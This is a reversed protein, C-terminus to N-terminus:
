KIIKRIRKVERNMIQEINQRTCNYEKALQNTSKPKDSYFGCYSKLIISSRSKFDVLREIQEYCVQNIVKEYENEVEIKYNLDEKIMSYILPKLIIEFKRSPVIKLNINLQEAVINLKKFVDRLELSIDSNNLGHIYMFFLSAMKKYGLGYLKMTSVNILSSKLTMNILEYHFNKRFFESYLKLRLIKGSKLFKLWIEISNMIIDEIDFDITNYNLYYYKKLNNYILYMTGNIMEELIKYNNTKQYQLYLTKVENINLKPYKKYRQWWNELKQTNM